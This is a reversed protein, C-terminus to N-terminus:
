FMCYISPIYPFIFILFLHFCAISLHYILSFSFSSFTFVHLLYITYLPFYSYVYYSVELRIDQSRCITNKSLSKFILNKFWAKRRKLARTFYPWIFRGYRKDSEFQECLFINLYYFKAICDWLKSTSSKFLWFNTCTLTCMRVCVYLM